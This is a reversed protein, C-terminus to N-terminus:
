LEGFESTEGKAHCASGERCDFLFLRQTAGIFVQASRGDVALHAYSAGTGFGNFEVSSAGAFATRIAPLLGGSEVLDPYFLGKLNADFMAPTRHRSSYVRTALDEPNALLVECTPLVPQVRSQPSSAM